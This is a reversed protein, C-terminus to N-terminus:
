MRGANDWADNLAAAISGAPTQMDGGQTGHISSAARRRKGVDQSAKRDAMIKGITPHQACAINYAEDLSMDRNRKAAMEMLDAMDLAVDNYFENQAAFEQLNQGIQAQFQQVQQHERQQYQQLQQQLPALKQNLMQDLQSQQQVEQPPAQGVLASDLAKIDIGFQKIINAATEAKQQPTGMQLLSATQLLNPLMQSAGGNMQFLQQYPQLARDMGEARKAQQAYQVIGKEYDAERKAIEKRVSEPTDKWAERAELSLGKPPTDLSPQADTEASQRRGDAGQADSQVGSADVDTQEASDTGTGGEAALDTSDSPEQSSEGGFAGESGAQVENSEYTDGDDNEAADWAAALSSTLDDLPKEDTM